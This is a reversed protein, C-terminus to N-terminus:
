GRCWGWGWLSVVHGVLELEIGGAGRQEDHVILRAQNVPYGLGLCQELSDVGGYGVDAGEADM